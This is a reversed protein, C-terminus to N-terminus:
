KLKLPMWTFPQGADGASISEQYVKGGKGPNEQLCINVGLEQNRAPKAGLLKWPIALEQVYGKGTIQSGSRIGATKELTQWGGGKGEQVLVKNGASLFVQFVGQEPSAAGGPRPTVQVWIGDATEADATGALVSADTVQHLVYLYREDYALQSRVQTAGQHGLFVPFPQQWLAEQQRGDVSISQRAAALEGIVYGKIMWVERQGRSSFANTSTLALVTNDDLVCLSNWLGSKTAPLNFPSSKRNFDRAEATGMVVKMEATELKNPRGETGQYSLITEGGALQRLFPAGAYVQDNVKEALAYSRAPSNGTITESWNNALTSRVLYPKFDTFGNDEIAVVIEKGNQLLLPSPMGDRNQARFSIAEPIKTWSEGQDASRLLSINQEASQTYPGENAFYLQIEGTPLQIAAPEWCGNEFQYGAEYVLREEKWTLGGDYSKKTRIGFKRSPHIQQPRPNYCVLISKDQLELLDPVAMHYGEPKAAVTVPASWTHGRDFSKVALVSGDAEYVGVLSRDRLQIVRAYGNYRARSAPSSLQRRSSYDWAIRSGRLLPPKSTVIAQNALPLSPRVPSCSLWLSLCLFPFLFRAHKFHM